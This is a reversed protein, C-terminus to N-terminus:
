FPRSQAELVVGRGLRSAVSGDTIDGNLQSPLTNRRLNDPGSGVLTTRVEPASWALSMQNTRSCETTYTALGTSNSHQSWRSTGFDGVQSRFFSVFM